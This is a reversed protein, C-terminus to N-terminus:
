SEARVACKLTKLSVSHSKKLRTEPSASYWAHRLPISLHLCAIVQFISTLM